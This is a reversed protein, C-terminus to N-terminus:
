LSGGSRVVVPRAGPESVLLSPRREPVKWCRWCRALSALSRAGGGPQGVVLDGNNRGAEGYKLMCVPEGDGVKFDADLRM